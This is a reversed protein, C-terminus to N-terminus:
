QVRVRIRAQLASAPVNECELEFYGAYSKVRIVADLAALYSESTFYVDVLTNATVKVDTYRWKKTSSDFTISVYPVQSSSDPIVYDKDVFDAVIQREANLTQQYNTNYGSIQQAIQAEYASIANETNTQYNGIATQTNAYYTEVNQNLQLFEQQLRIALDGTVQDKVTDFWENFIADYQAFLTETDIADAELGRVIGCVTQDTRKDTIADGLIAAAGSAVEITALVLDYTTENRTPAVYDNVYVVTITRNSLSWRLVIADTRTYATSNAPVTLTMDEDLEYWFGNIFGWGAKVQVSMAGTALVKLCNDPNYYVGNGFFKEFYAAFQDYFYKIDWDGLTGTQPNIITEDWVSEFFGSHQAM